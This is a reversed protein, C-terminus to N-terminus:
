LVLWMDVGVVCVRDDEKAAAAAVVVEEEKVETHVEINSSTRTIRGCVLWRWLCRDSRNIIVDVVLWM